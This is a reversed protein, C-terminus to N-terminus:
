WSLLLVGLKGPAEPSMTLNCMVELGACQVQTDLLSSAPTTKKTTSKQPLGGRFLNQSSNSDCPQYKKQPPSHNPLGIFEDLQYQLLNIKHYNKIGSNLCLTKMCGLHQVGFYTVWTSRWMGQPHYGMCVWTIYPKIYPNGKGPYTPLYPYMGALGRFM